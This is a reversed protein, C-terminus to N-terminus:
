SPKPHCGVPRDHELQLVEQRELAGAAIIRELAEHEVPVLGDIAQLSRWRDLEEFSQHKLVKLVHRSERHLHVV